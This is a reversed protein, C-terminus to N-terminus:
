IIKNLFSHEYKWNAQQEALRLFAGLVNKRERSHRGCSHSVGFCICDSLATVNQFVIIIFGSFITANCTALIYMHVRFSLKVNAEELCLLLIDSLNFSHWLSDQKVCAM